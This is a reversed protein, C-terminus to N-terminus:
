FSGAPPDPTTTIRSSAGCGPIAEMLLVEPLAMGASFVGFSSYGWSAKWSAMARVAPSGSLFCPLTERPPEKSTVKVM